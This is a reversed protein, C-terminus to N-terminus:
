EGSVWAWHRGLGAVLDTKPQWGFAEEARSIDLIVQQIDFGRGPQYDVTPESGTVDTIAALLQKISLGQGSGCNYIGPKDAEGALACLEALDEVYIYDRVISGDGWVQLADGAHIRNFFTGIIGQVGLRGQRPGYPNSPRLVVPRLGNLQQYMCLYREIAMKVIGYSSLPRLPHTEPIPLTEPDGYIAGGTSLYVIRKKGLRDMQELLKVTNVLNSSIDAVPDINSSSPVTTSIAHYVVDVDALAEIVKSSDSFDGIVSEVHGALPRPRDICDFVKVGWGRQLLADVIHSGIFGNGGLVLANM